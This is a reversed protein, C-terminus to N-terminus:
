EMMIYSAPIIHSHASPKSRRFLSAMFRLTRASAVGAHRSIHVAHAKPWTSFLYFTYFCLSQKATSSIVIKSEKKGVTKEYKHM